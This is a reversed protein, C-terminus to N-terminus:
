NKELTALIEKNNGALEFSDQGNSNKRNPNAGKNVLLKVCSACENLVAIMLATLSKANRSSIDIESNILIELIQSNSKAAFMISNNGSASKKNPNAGHKLLLSVCEFCGQKTAWMLPTINRNDKLSIDAGNDLLASISDFAGKKAALILPSVGEADQVNINEVRTTLLKTIKFNNNEVSDLLLQNSVKGEFKNLLYKASEYKQFKISKKIGENILLSKQTNNQSLLIKDILANQESAVAEFFLQNVLKQNPASQIPHRSLIKNYFKTYGNRAAISLATNGGKDSSWPSHGRSILHRAVDLQNQAVAISLIPWGFYTNTSIQSQKTLSAIKHEMQRKLLSDDNRTKTFQIDLGFDENYDIASKNQKDKLQPNSGNNILWQATSPQEYMVALILPTQNLNNILDVQLSKNKMLILYETKGLKAAIHLASNGLRDGQTIDVDRKLLWRVIDKRDLIISQILPTNGHENLHNINAGSLYQKIMLSLNGSSLALNFLRQTQPKIKDSRASNNEISDLIKIAQKNGNNAALTLYYKASQPNQNLQKGKHYLNGLLFAARPSKVSSEILLAEARSASKKVGKGNLYLVALQYKAESNNQAALKELQSAALSFKGQLLNQKIETTIEDASLNVTLLSIYLFVIISKVNLLKM